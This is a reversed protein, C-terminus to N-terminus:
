YCGSKNFVKISHLTPIGYAQAIESKSRENKDVERIVEVKEAITKSGGGRMGEM